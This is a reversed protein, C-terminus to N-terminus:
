IDILHLIDFEPYVNKTKQSYINWVERRIEYKCLVVCITVIISKGSFYSAPGLWGSGLVGLKIM